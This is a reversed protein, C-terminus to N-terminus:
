SIKIVKELLKSAFYALFVIGFIQMLKNIDTISELFNSGVYGWFYVIAIKSILLAFLYKKFSVDALGAAINVVFAPTFPIALLIVLANFDMDRIKTMFNGVKTQMKKNRKFLFYFKHKFVTKFLMFSLMSGAICGCWSVISGTLFGYSVSNLGIFIALPMIPFASELLVLIFGGVLGLSQLLQVIYNIITNM